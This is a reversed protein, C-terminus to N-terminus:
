VYETKIIRYIYSIFLISNLIFIIAALIILLEKSIHSYCKCNKNTKIIFIIIIISTIFTYLMYLSYFLNFIRGNIIYFLINFIFYLITLVIYIVIYYYEWIDLCDCQKKFISLWYYLYLFIIFYIIISIIELWM